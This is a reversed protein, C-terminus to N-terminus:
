AWGWLLMKVWGSVPLLAVFRVYGLRDCGSWAALFFVVAMVLSFFILLGDVLARRKYKDM